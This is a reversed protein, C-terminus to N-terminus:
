GPTSTDCVNWGPEVETPEHTLVLDDVDLRDVVELGDIATWTHQFGRDHNGAVLTHHIDSRDALWRALLTWEDNPDSHFLDGLFVIHAPRVSDRLAALRDLDARAAERPLSIGSRRMHAVRGLHVDAILLIRRDVLVAAREPRLELETRDLSLRM